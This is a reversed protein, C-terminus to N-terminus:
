DLKRTHSWIFLELRKKTWSISSLAEITPREVPPFHALRNGLKRTPPSIVPNGGLLPDRWMCNNNGGRGGLDERNEGMGPQTENSVRRKM